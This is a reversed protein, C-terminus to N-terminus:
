RNFRECETEKVGYEVRDLTNSLPESMTRMVRLSSIPKVYTQWMPCIFYQKKAELTQHSLICCINEERCDDSMHFYMFLFSRLM